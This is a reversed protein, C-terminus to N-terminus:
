MTVLQLSGTQRTINNISNISAWGLEKGDLMLVIRSPTSNRAAIRDALTDMWGTNNELPLIAEKGREGINALMSQTVIGGTALKPIQPAKMESLNFGLTKGGISPVWDPVDFSIKNIGRIVVNIGGTIGKILGNISDIILNIPIKIIGVLSDFVGKFILKVGEWAKEWDGTFVGTIFKVIGKITDIIGGVVDAIGGVLTKARTIIVDVVGLVIPTLVNILWDIVPKIVSNWLILLEKSIDLVADVLNDWLPKLNDDWIEQVALLVKDWIPKIVTDYITQVTDRIGTVTKEFEAMLPAGHADWAKKIGEFVDTFIGKLTEFTPIIIDNVSSNILDTLFAFNESGMRLKSDFIDSYVPALNESFSNVVTPVFDEVIYGGLTGFATKINEFGTSFNAGIGAWDIGNFADTWATITPQFMTKLQEAKKKLSEIFASMKSDTESLAGDLGATDIGMGGVPAMVGPAGAGAGAGAGASGSSLVNLEDFGATSRKLNEAAKTASNLNKTLGGAGTAAAGMSTATNAVAGKNGSLVGFFKLVWNVAQAIKEVFTAVYPIIVNLAPALANFFAAGLNNVATMLPQVANGASAMASDLKAQSENYALLAANNKEYLEAADSYLGNLTERLLLEREEFSSTAALKANFEDESGGAWNLADALSGTVKGVRLTENAAETLSEIPLSDGFSAFVGQSIKTWEALSQQNTTIKALHSAAEVATDSEGMFRFLDNYTASAQAASSGAAMFAANLKAQETRYAHTSKGLSILAAGIAAIAAVAAAAAVATTKAMGKISAGFGAGSSKGKQNLNEVEKRVDAIAKQAEDTVAKIIIKLEETM